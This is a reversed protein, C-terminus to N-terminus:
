NYVYYKENNYAIYAEYRIIKHNLESPDDMDICQIRKFGFGSFIDDISSSLVSTTGKNWIDIKYRVYTIQEKNDTKISLKNEEEQYQILPFSEWSAPYKNSVKDKCLVTCLANFITPKINIM